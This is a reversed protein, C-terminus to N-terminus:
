KSNKKRLNPKINLSDLIKEIKIEESDSLKEGNKKFIKIGNDHYPNHSASIM